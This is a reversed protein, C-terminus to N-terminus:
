GSNLNCYTIDNTPLLSVPRKLNEVITLFSTLDTDSIVM